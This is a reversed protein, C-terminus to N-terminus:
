QQRLWWRHWDLARELGERLRVEPVWDFGERTRTIDLVSTPVDVARQATFRVETRRGAVDWVLDLLDRVSTGVGTAANFAGTASGEGARVVLRALDEVHLHDRIISGDGWIEVREGTLVKRLLTNVLGHSGKSGQRPGYTNSPRLIVPLLGRNRSYLAIYSEIAVKVIGYSCIPALPHSEPTPVTGTPGYVTGGSSLFVLRRVGKAVMCDLVNLSALLNASVDFAPDADGSGPTTASFAHIVCDCGDLAASVALPDTIDAKRYEVGAVPSRFLEGRRSIVCVEHGTAVLRDVVHSGIFGCGGLVVFRV